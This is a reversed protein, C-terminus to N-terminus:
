ILLVVGAIGRLGYVIILIKSSVCSVEIEGVELMLEGQQDTCQLSNTYTQAQTADSRIRCRDRGQPEAPVAVGLGRSHSRTYEDLNLTASVRERILCVIDCDFTIIVRCLLM